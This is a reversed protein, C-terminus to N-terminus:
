VCYQQYQSLLKRMNQDIRYRPCLRLRRVGAVDESFIVKEQELLKLANRFPEIAM